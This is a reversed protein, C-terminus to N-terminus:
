KRIEYAPYAHDYQYGLKKALRASGLNHADWEPYWGQELCDLILKAGCIHALGRRRYEEKTDVQIEIAGPYGSYSSAGSVPAGDTQIVVGIGYAQYQEYNDYQSVWDSCWSLTRCRWFLSEDIRKLEYGEPLTSVVRQLAPKDFSGPSKNMAYRVIRKAREGYCKEIAEEGGKSQPVLIMFEGDEDTRYTVLEEKPQGALFHFDGLIVMASDCGEKDNVYLRGMIGMLCSRIMVNKWGAFLCAVRERQQSEYVMDCM